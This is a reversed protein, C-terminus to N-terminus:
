LVKRLEAWASDFLLDAKENADVQAAVAATAWPHVPDKTFGAGLLFALTTYTATGRETSLGYRRAHHIGTELVEELVDDGAHKYRAPLLEAYFARLRAKFGPTTSTVLHESSEARLKRIGNSLRRADGGWAPFDTRTAEVYAMAEALLREMREREGTDADHLIIPAWPFRPDDDFGAGLMLSVDIFEWVGRESTVGFTRARRWGHQIADRVCSEGCLKIFQPFLRSVHEFTRDEFARLSGQELAKMQEPRILM